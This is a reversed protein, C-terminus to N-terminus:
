SIAVKKWESTLGNTCVYIFGSDFTITGTVGVTTGNVPSSSSIVLNGKITNNGAMNTNGGIGVGGAIVLAGSNSSNSSTTNTISIKDSSNLTSYPDSWKFTSLFNTATLNLSRGSPLSYITNDNYSISISPPLTVTLKSVKQSGITGDALTFQGSIYFDNNIPLIIHVSNDYGGLLSFWVSGNWRAIRNASKGGALTFDGGTYIGSSSIGITRVTNNVGIGLSSWMSGNWQAIYNASVGGALTFNGGVYLDSISSTIVNVTNNVGSGLSSWVSGNYKAINNVAVGGASNFFGGVYLDTGIVSLSLVSVTGTGSIIGISSWVSGNWKAIYNTNSVGGATLFTGGVYVDSGIIAIAFCSGDLGTGLASWVSGNWRAIRNASNGGATTFIGGVYLNPSSFALANVNNGLGSGLSTIANTVTDVKVIYLASTGFAISFDGGLYIENGTGQVISNAKASINASSEVIRGYVILDQINNIINKEFLKTPSNLTYSGGATITTSKKDLSINGPVSLTESSINTIGGLSINGAVGLGGNVVVSGTIPSVSSTTSLVTLSNSTLNGNLASQTLSSIPKNLDSTNDVNSLGIQSKTVFHPNSISSIHNISNIINTNANVRNETYYLQTGEVIDTTLLDVVGQKGNVSVILSSQDLKYWLPNNQNDSVGVVWDGTVWEQVGNLITYGSINSGFPANTVVYFDGAQVFV